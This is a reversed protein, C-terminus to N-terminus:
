QTQVVGVGGCPRGGEWEEVVMGENRLEGDNTM